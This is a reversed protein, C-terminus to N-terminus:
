FLGGAGGTLGKMSKASDETSARLAENVAAMVMDQLLEADEPDLVDPRINLSILSKGGKVTAEVAGGGSSATYEREELEAQILAIDQQMKQAQKMLSNMNIGGGASSSFKGPKM